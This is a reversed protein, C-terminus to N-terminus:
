QSPEGIFYALILVLASFAFLAVISYLVAKFIFSFVKALLGKPKKVEKAPPKERSPKKPPASAKPASAPVNEVPAGELYKFWHDESVIAIGHGNERDAAAKEIKRGYSSHKWSETAYAGIVLFDTKRTVNGVTAGLSKVATECDSRKGHTFTGTFAFRKNEFTIPPAPNDLPLGTSKLTEGLEFDSGSFETLTELLEQKEFEDVTGDELIEFIRDTLLTIVPSETVAKNAVLWKQLFLVEDQTVLGDAIIGRSLGILEDVQRDIIGTRNISTHKDM